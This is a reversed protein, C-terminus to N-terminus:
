RRRRNVLEILDPHNYKAAWAQLLLDPNDDLVPAENGNSGEGWPIGATMPEGPRETPGFAGTPGQPLPGGRPPAVAGGPGPPAGMAAQGQQDNVAQNEGYKLGTHPMQPVRGDTRASMSGPGSVAAPKSPRQYGGRRRAM